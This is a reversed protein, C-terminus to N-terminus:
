NGGLKISKESGYANVPNVRILIDVPKDAKLMWTLKRQEYANIGELPMRERGSIFTIGKGTLTVIAPRPVKTRQGIALPFSFQSTNRVWANIRYIGSRQPEVKIEEVSLVPIQKVLEFIWPVQVAFLTDIQQPQPLLDAYPISGGIEVKGLKPHTFEKWEVFGKGGLISDNYAMFVNKLTDKPKPMAWFDMSFSPLGLQYYTWLEFTGDKERPPDVRKATWGKEKLYKKYKDALATYLKSDADVPNIVAGMDLMGAVMADDVTTGPPVTVRIMEKVEDLSYTKDPDANLMRANRPSLKIASLNVQSKRGGKLPALCFNTSGYTMTLTIEPHANMFQMLSYIESESGSWAGTGTQNYGYLFPFTIGINTGGQSDENYQGDGDNDMGEPYLKYIGVEGKAPDARKMLRPDKPDPIYSGDPEKVRMQTILGDGNLDEPGDEDTLEDMDDNWPRFNRGDVSLPREFFRNAGDPNGCTLIYWTLKSSLEPKKLLEGILFLAGESALPTTGELNAVVLVAPNKKAASATERGIEVMQYDLGKFSKALTHIKVQDPNSKALSALYTDIEAPTHFKNFEPEQALAAFPWALILGAALLIRQIVPLSISM